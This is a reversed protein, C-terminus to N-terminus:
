VFSLTHYYRVIINILKYKPDYGWTLLEFALKKSTVEWSNFGTKRTLM